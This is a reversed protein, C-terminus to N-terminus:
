PQLMINKHKYTLYTVEKTFPIPKISLSEFGPFKKSPLEGEEMRVVEDTTLFKNPYPIYEFAKAMMSPVFPLGVIPTDKAGGKELVLKSFDKWTFVEPGYLEYVKGFSDTETIVTQIAEAVDDVFVPQFQAQGDNVLPLFGFLSPIALTFNVIRDEEGFMKAPRIITADPFHGLVAEESNKKAANYVSRSDPNSAGLASVHIFRTVGAEKAIRAIREASVNNAEDISYNRTAWEKGLLNIVVNSHKTAEYISQEDRVDFPIPNIMGLDGMLRLHRVEDGDGRYPIVCQAGVGGLRNVMYRGLFGTAGFVTAVIGSVSSRGGPRVRLAKDAWAAPGRHQM